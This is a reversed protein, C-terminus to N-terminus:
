GSPFFDRTPFGRSGYDTYKGIYGIAQFVLKHMVNTVADVQDIEAQTPLAGPRRAHVTENRLSTWSDFESETVVGLEKLAWLRDSTSPKRLFNCWGSMRNRIKTEDTYGEPCKWERLHAEVTDVAHLYEENPTAANQFCTNLVGEVAVGLALRYPDFGSERSEITSYVYRSLPHWNNAEHGLVFKFYSAFLRWVCGTKDHFYISDIPPLYSKGGSHPPPPASRINSFVTDGREESLMTWWIPRALVFQLAEIVRKDLGPTLQDTEVEIKLVNGGHTFVFKYGDTEIKAVNMRAGGTVREGNELTTTTLTKANFPINIDEFVSLSLRTGALRLSPNNRFMPHTSHVDTLRGTVLARTKRDNPLVMYEAVKDSIWDCELDDIASLRYISDDPILQGVEMREATHNSDFSDAYMTFQLQRERDFRIMGPGQYTRAGDKPTRLTMWHCHLDFERGNRIAESLPTLQPSFVSPVSM